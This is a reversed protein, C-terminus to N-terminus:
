FWDRGVFGNDVGKQVNQFFDNGCKHCHCRYKKMPYLMLQFQLLWICCLMLSGLCVLCPLLNVARRVQPGQPPVLKLRNYYQAMGQYRHSVPEQDFYWCDAQACAL